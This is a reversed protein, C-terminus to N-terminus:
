KINLKSKATKILELTRIQNPVLKDARILDELAKEYDQQTKGLSLLDQAYNQLAIVINMNRSLEARKYNALNEEAIRRNEEALKQNKIAEKEAKETKKWQLYVFSSFISLGLILLMGILGLRILRKKEKKRKESKERIKKSALIPAVMTDHSIEYTFGSKPAPETRILRTEVLQNLLKKPIQYRKEVVGEFVSLRREEAEYILEEEIFQQIKKQEIPDGLKSVQNQYYNQFIDSLPPLDEVQIKVKENESVLRQKKLAIEEITQCIVQLQFTEIEKSEDLLYNLIQEKAEPEFEFPRVTFDGKSQSPLLLAAEAGQKSLAKLEYTNRLITPIRDSLRGLLSFRDARINIVIKLEFPALLESMNQERDRELKEQIKENIKKPIRSTLLDSLVIKFLKQSDEPYTFFEEFQDFFLVLSGKEAIQLRKFQSWLSNDLFEDAWTSPPVPLRSKLNEIPELSLGDQFAGFRIKLFSFGNKEELVPLVGAQVLSTKGLGSKGYLVCLPQTLIQAILREKDQDRGFFLSQDQAEFSRIGPYRYKM